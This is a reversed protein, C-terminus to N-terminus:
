TKENSTEINNTSRMVEKRLDRSFVKFLKQRMNMTTELQSERMWLAIVWLKETTTQSV